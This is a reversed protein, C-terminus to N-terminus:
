NGQNCLGAKETRGRHIEAADQNLQEAGGEREGSRPALPRNRGPRQRPRVVDPTLDRPFPLHVTFLPPPPHSYQKIHEQEAKLEMVVEEFKM